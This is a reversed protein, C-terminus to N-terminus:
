TDTEEDIFDDYYSSREQQPQHKSKMLYDTKLM